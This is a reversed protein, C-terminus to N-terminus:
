QSRCGTLAGQRRASKAATVKRSAGSGVAEEACRSSEESYQHAGLRSPAMFHGVGGGKMPQDPHAGSRPDEYLFSTEGLQHCINPPPNGAFTSHSRIASPGVGHGQKLNGQLEDDAEGAFHSPVGYPQAPMAHGLFSHPNNIAFDQYQFNLNLDHM